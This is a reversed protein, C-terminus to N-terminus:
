GPERGLNAIGFFSQPATVTIAGVSMLWDGAAYDEGDMEGAGMDLFYAGSSLDLVLRTSTEFFDGAMVAPLRNGSIETNSGYIHTDKLGKVIWGLYPRAMKKRAIARISLRLHTGTPVIPGLENGASDTLMFDVIDATPKGTKKFQPNFHPRQRYHEDDGALGSPGPTAARAPGAANGHVADGSGHLADLFSSIAAEPEGDHRLQGKAVYLARGCFQKVLELSHTVFLITAGRGQLEKFRAYCKNQFAVDGVALAEDVILIDPETAIAAAFAVRLFMGSSYTRAPQDFYLGIDAFAEIDALRAPIETQPVGQLVCQFEANRRGTWDPNFGAGLELLASIRGKAIVSGSSPKLTGTIIQLLTSKGAGNSGIIGVTEGRRITFSVDDLARHVPIDASADRGFAQKLRMLPTEGLRYHKSVGDVTIVADAMATGESRVTSREDNRQM